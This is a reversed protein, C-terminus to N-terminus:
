HDHDHPEHSVKEHMKLMLKNDFEHAHDHKCKYRMNKKGMMRELDMMALKTKPGGERIRKREAVLKNVSNDFKKDAADARDHVDVIAKMLQMNDVKEALVHARVEAIKESVEMQNEEMFDIYKDRYEDDLKMIEEIALPKGKKMSEHM